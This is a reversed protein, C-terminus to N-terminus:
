LYFKLHKRIDRSLIMLGNKDFMDINRKIYRICTGMFGVDLIWRSTFIYLNKKIFNGCKDSLRNKVRSLNIHGSPQTNEPYLSFPYVCSGHSTGFYELISSNYYYSSRLSTINCKEFYCYNQILLKIINFQEQVCAHNLGTKDKKDKIDINCGNKIFMKVIEDDGYYCAWIFPTIGCRDVKNFDIKKNNLRRKIENLASFRILEEISVTTLDFLKSM